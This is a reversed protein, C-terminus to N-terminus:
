TLFEEVEAITPISDAAGKKSVALASAASAYRLIKEIPEDKCIGVVFYGTFTDGAATTDVVTIPFIPHEVCKEGDIFKSGKKGLTLMVKLNPYNKNVWEQFLEVDVGSITEAEIENLILCYIDNFDLENIVSSVPSPNLVIKMGKDAASRVIYPLNSIENQLMLIDGASFNKLVEDIFDTTIQHNAGPFLLISNEGSNDVQIIAHGTKSTLTKLYDLKVGSECLVEKLMKGDEGICGAHYLAGGARSVALSQNLGKGGSFLQMNHSSITEGPNVIHEVDYVMDINLSGFNLIKM